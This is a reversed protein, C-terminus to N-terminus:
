EKKGGNERGAVAIAKATVRELMSILAAREEESFDELLLQNWEGMLTRVRPYIRAAKETPYVRLVRRDASDPERTVFGGRELSGLQRTVNSKNVCIQKALQDQSIGPTKCVHFIYIHQCNNIGEDGLKSGRYTGACRHIRSIYRMLSDM